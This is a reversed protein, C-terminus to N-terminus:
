KKKIHISGGSSRLYLEPGGGNVQANLSRPSITGSLKVPFDTHIRGGSTQADVDLGIDNNLYITITGGSTTLRCDAEPQHSLYARVSGGSTSAKVAGMAEDITISGGSTHVDINGEAQQIRISGGSTQANVEGRIEGIRISGGSTKGSVNGTINEFTMSGGSTRSLIEGELDLVSISGGSTHLDVDYELPVTILFRIQLRNTVRNFFSRFGNRKYEAKVFIDNGDQDFRVQFDDLIDKATRKSTTRVNQIIEVEVTDGRKGEVMISGTNTDVTLKGGPRVTYSKSITEEIAATDAVTIVLFFTLIFLLRVVGKQNIFIKM